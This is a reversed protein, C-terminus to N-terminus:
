LIESFHVDHLSTWKKNVLEAMCCCLKMHDALESAFVMHFQAAIPRIGTLRRCAFAQQRSCPLFSIASFCCLAPLCFGAPPQMASKIFIEKDKSIFFSLICITQLVLYFNYSIHGVLIWVPM